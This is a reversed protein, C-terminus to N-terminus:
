SQPREPLRIELTLRSSQALASSMALGVRSMCPTAVADLDAEVDHATCRLEFGDALASGPVRDDDSSCAPPLNIM